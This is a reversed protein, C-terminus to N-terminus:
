SIIHSLMLLLGLTNIFTTSKASPNKSTANDNDNSVEHLSENGIVPKLDTREGQRLM